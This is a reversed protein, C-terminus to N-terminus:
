SESSNQSPRKARIKARACMTEEDACQSPDLGIRSPSSAPARPLRMKMPSANRSQANFISEAVDSQSGKMSSTNWSYLAVSDPNIGANALGQILDELEDAEKNESFGEGFYAEIKSEIEEKGPAELPPQPIGEEVAEPECEETSSAEM